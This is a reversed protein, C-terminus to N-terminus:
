PGEMRDMTDNGGGAPSGSDGRRHETPDRGAAGDAPTALANGSWDQKQTEGLNLASKRRAMEAAMEDATDLVYPTIFVITELRNNSGHSSNFLRGLIPLDGLIPIKSRSRGSDDRVLGGLMITQRNRVAISANIQRQSSVRMGSRPDGQEGPQSMTQTIEMMVVKNTNIHPKVTLTLGVDQTTYDQIPTAVATGSVYTSGRYVYIQDTATIKAEKNDTTLVVPTSVIRSRSDTSALKVIIDTNLGFLTLYYTLGGAAPYAIPSTADGPNLSNGGGAGGFAFTPTLAGNQREYALMSRQLWGVGTTLDDGLKVEILVAEILVQSLMMDMDRIIDGLAALDNKSAMIILSNTREDSLIKVNEKSLQGVKTKTEASLVPTAGQRREVYERLTTAEAGAGGAAGEGKGAPPKQDEKATTAGILDNLMGAISKAEAFELRYIKVMVDPATAVDLVDIILKFFAKNERRSLIILINTREDAVIRVTGVITGREALALISQAAEPAPAANRPRMVGPIPATPPREVGPSGTAKFQPVTSKQADKQQEAIIEEIKRKIDAAKAHLINYVLPEERAEVPQDVYGVIQMIRNINAATDTVMISNIRDFIHIQGYTHKLPEIVKAVDASDLHKLPIMQSIIEPSDKLPKGEVYERIPMPEPRSATAPVVRLFKDGEKLLAVGNMGLVTEMAQLYEEMTLLTQSKLTIPSKPLGPAKLLTRGTAAAYADLLNDVTANASFALQYSPPEAAADAKAEASPPAPAREAFPPPEPVEPLPPPAEPPMAPPAPSPVAPAAAVAPVSSTAALPLAVGATESAFVTGAAVLLGAALVVLVMTKTIM